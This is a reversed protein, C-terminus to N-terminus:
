HHEPENGGGSIPLAQYVAEARSIVIHQMKNASRGGLKNILSVPTHDMTPNPEKALYIWRPTTITRHFGWLVGIINIFNCFYM